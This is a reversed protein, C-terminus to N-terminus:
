SKNTEGGGGGGNGIRIVCVCVGGGGGVVVSVCCRKRQKIFNFLSPVPVATSILALLAMFVYM